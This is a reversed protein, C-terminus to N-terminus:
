RTQPRHLAVKLVIKPDLLRGSEEANGFSGKPVPPALALDSGMSMRDILVAKVSLRIQVGQQRRDVM